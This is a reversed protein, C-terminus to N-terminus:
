KRCGLKLDYKSARNRGDRANKYRYITSLIKKSSSKYLCTYTGSATYLSTTFISLGNADSNFCNKSPFFLLTFFIINGLRSLISIYFLIAPQLGLDKSKPTLSFCRISFYHFFNPSWGFGFGNEAMFHLFIIVLTILLREYIKPYYLLYPM